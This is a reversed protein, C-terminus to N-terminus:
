PSSGSRCFLPVAPAPTPESAQKEALCELIIGTYNDQNQYNKGAVIRRIEEAAEAAPLGLAGTLESNSVANYIGDSMLMLKDGPRVEIPSAPMDIHKLRGMGVFSTLGSGKRDSYVSGLTQEGNVANLALENKYIHERNLQMLDGDRYLCIRSDGVSVFSFSNGRLYGMILTSGCRKYGNPGLLRDVATMARSTLALLEQEQTAPGQLEMFGDLVAEVITQSVKDGDALGGMGDAVVALLGKEDMMATDSVAFCDQQYERAGQEHVKGVSVFNVDGPLHASSPASPSKARKNALILSVALVATTVLLVAAVVIATVTFAPPPSELFSKAAEATESAADKATTVAKTVAKTVAATTEDGSVATLLINMPRM